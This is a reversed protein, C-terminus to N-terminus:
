EDDERAEQDGNALSHPTAGEHESLRETDGGGSRETTLASNTEELPLSGRNSIKLEKRVKMGQFGAQIRSAAEEQESKETVGQHGNSAIPTTDDSEDRDSDPIATKDHGAVTQIGTVAEKHDEDDHPEDTTSRATDTLGIGINGIEPSAVVHTGIGINGIEPSAVVHTDRIKQVEHRAHMGRVGAQIKTVADERNDVDAIKKTPSKVSAVVTGIEPDALKNPSEHTDRIVKVERRAKMGRVGAQIKTVAAEQDDDTKKEAVSAVLEGAVAPAENEDMRDEHTMLSRFGAQIKEIAKEREEQEEMTLEKKEDAENSEDPKQTQNVAKNIKIEKRAQMGRYGAQIKTSAEDLLM